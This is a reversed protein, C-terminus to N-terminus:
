IFVETKTVSKTASEHTLIMSTLLIDAVNFSITSHSSYNAFKNSVKSYQMQKGPKNPWRVRIPEM